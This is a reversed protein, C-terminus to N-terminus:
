PSRRLCWRLSQRWGGSLAGSTGMGEFDALWECVIKGGVVPFDSLAGMGVMVRFFRSLSVVQDGLRALAIDLWLCLNATRNAPVSCASVEGRNPAHMVNYGGSDERVVVARLGDGGGVRRTCVCIEFRM